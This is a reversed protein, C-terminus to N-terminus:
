GEVRVNKLSDIIWDAEALEGSRLQQYRRAGPAWAGKASRIGAATDEIAISKIPLTLLTGYRESLRAFALAYSEPDPKKRRVDDASVIM